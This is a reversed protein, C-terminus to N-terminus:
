WNLHFRVVRFMFKIPSIFSFQSEIQIHKRPASFASYAVVRDIHTMLDNDRQFKSITKKKTLM